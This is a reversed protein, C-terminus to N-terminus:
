PDPVFGNPFPNPREQAYRYPAPLIGQARLNRESDYYVVLVDDPSSSARGFDVYRVPSSEREGHGTGIRSESKASERRQGVSEDAAGASEAEAPMPAHPIVRDHSLGVCCPVSERFLAVGIVGVHDPRGTRAAYSDKLHTFYFAAVEDLSKRWGEISVSDWPDIVYGSQETAATEGSVVNVGDVSVVALIRGGSHNRVREYRHKPEGAIYLRGGHEYLPLTLGTTRDHVEVDALAGACSVGPVLVAAVVVAWSVGRM